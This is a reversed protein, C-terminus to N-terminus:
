RHTLNFFDQRKSNHMKRQPFAEIFTRFVVASTSVKVDDADSRRQPFVVRLDGYLYFRRRDLYDPEQQSCFRTVEVWWNACRRGGSHMKTM